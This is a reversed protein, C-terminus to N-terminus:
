PAWYVYPRVSRDCRIGHPPHQLVLHIHRATAGVIDALVDATFKVRPHRHLFALLKEWKQM